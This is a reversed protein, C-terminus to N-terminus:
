FTGTDAFCYFNSKEKENMMARRETVYDPVHAKMWEICSLVSNMHKGASILVRYKTGTIKNTRVYVNGNEKDQRNCLTSNAGAADDCIRRMAKTTANTLAGAQINSLEYNKDLFGTLQKVVM